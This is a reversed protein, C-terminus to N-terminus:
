KQGRLWERVQDASQDPPFVPYFHKRVSGDDIVLTLRRLLTEGGFEFTPLRLARAFDLNADSLLPFPLHLREVAEGQYETIQTSLGFLHTIGLAILEQHLDRFNCVQTTCGRAGPIADWEPAIAQGPRGTKPYIFVVTRHSLDALNVTTGDTAQLLVSPLHIGPLHDTEGDDVPVPLNPPLENLV